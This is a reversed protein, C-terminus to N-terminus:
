KVVKMTAFKFHEAYKTNPHTGVEVVEVVEAEYTTIFRDGAKVDADERIRYIRDTGKKHFKQFEKYFEMRGASVNDLPPYFEVDEVCVQRTIQVVEFEAPNPYHKGKRTSTKPRRNSSSYWACAMVLSAIADNRNETEYIRDGNEGEFSVTTSNCFAAGDNSSESVTM